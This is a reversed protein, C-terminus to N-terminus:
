HCLELWFLLPSPSTEWALGLLFSSNGHLFPLTTLMGSSISLANDELLGGPARYGWRGM